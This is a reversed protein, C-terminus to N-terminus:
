PLARCGLETSEGQIEHYHQYSDKKHPYPAIEPDFTDAMKHWHKHMEDNASTGEHDKNTHPLRSTSCSTTCSTSCSTFSHLQSSSQVQLRRLAICSVQLSLLSHNVRSFPLDDLSSKWLPLNTFIEEKLLQSPYAVFDVHILLCLRAKPYTDGEIPPDGLNSTHDQLCSPLSFVSYVLFCPPQASATDSRLLAVHLSASTFSHLQSSSQVQLRPLALSCSVQLSLFNHNVKSFPLDDLSSKWFAKFFNQFYEM